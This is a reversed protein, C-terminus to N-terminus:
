KGKTETSQKEEGDEAKFDCTNYKLVPLILLTHTYIHRYM